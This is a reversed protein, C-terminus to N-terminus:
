WRACRQLVCECACVSINEGNEWHSLSRNVKHQSEQFIPNLSLMRKILWTVSSDDCFPSIHGRQEDREVVGKRRGGVGGGIGINHM